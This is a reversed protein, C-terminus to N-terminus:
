KIFEYCFFMSYKVVNIIMVSIKKVLLFFIFNLIFIIMLIVRFINIFNKNLGVVVVM